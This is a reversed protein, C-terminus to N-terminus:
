TEVIRRARATVMSGFGLLVPPDGSALFAELAPPLADGARLVLARVRRLPRPFSQGEPLLAPEAAMILPPERLYAEVSQVEPLGWARRHANIPRRLTANTLLGFLGWWARNVLQPWRQGRVIPPPHHPARVVSPVYAVFAYRIGLHTAVSPGGIQLGAGVLLYAGECIRRLREFQLPLITDRLYPLQYRFSQARDGVRRLEAAIDPGAAAFTLGSARVWSEFNEPAALVVDHGRARLGQGLAVMPQVDGRTGYPALVVKM